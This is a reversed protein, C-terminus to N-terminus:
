RVGQVSDSFVNVLKCNDNLAIVDEWQANLVKFFEKFRLNGFKLHIVKPPPESFLIRNSFDADKTIITLAHAKAYDWIQSDDWEDDIERVHQFAPDNWLALRSPLNVDILFRVGSTM